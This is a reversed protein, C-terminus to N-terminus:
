ALIQQVEQSNRAAATAQSLPISLEQPPPIAPLPGPQRRARTENFSPMLDALTSPKRAISSTRRQLSVKRGELGALCWVFAKGSDFLLREFLLIGSSLYSLQLEYQVEPSQAAHTSVQVVNNVYHQLIGNDCSSAMLAAVNNRVITFHYLCLFSSDESTGTTSDLPLPALSISAQENLETDAQMASSSDHAVPGAFSNQPTSAMDNLPAHPASDFSSERSLDLSSSLSGLRRQKLALLKSSKAASEPVDDRGLFGEASDISPHQLQAAQQQAVKNRAIYAAAQLSSTDDSPVPEPSVNTSLLQKVEVVSSGGLASGTPTSVRHADAPGKESCVGNLKANAPDLLTTSESRQKHRQALVHAEAESVLNSLIEDIEDAIHSM